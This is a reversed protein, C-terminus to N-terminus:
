SPQTDFLPAVSVQPRQRDSYNRIYVRLAQLINMNMNMNM